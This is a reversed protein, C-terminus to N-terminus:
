FLAEDEDLLDLAKGLKSVAAYNEYSYVTKISLVLTNYM